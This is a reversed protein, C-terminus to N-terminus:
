ETVHLQVSTDDVATVEFKFKSATFTSRPHVRIKDNKSADDRLYIWLMATKGRRKEGSEDWEDNWFNGAGIRVDEITAQTNAAITVNMPGAPQASSAPDASGSPLPNAGSPVAATAPVTAVGGMGPKPAENSCGACHVAAAILTSVAAVSRALGRSGTTM